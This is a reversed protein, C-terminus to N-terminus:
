EKKAKAIGFYYGIIAGFGGGVIGTIIGDHGTIFGSIQISTLLALAIVAILTNDNM